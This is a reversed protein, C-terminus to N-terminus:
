QKLLIKVYDHTTYLIASVLGYNKKLFHFWARSPNGLAAEKLELRKKYPLGTDEWTNKKPHDYECVGAFFGSVYIAIGKRSAAFGYDYDGFAHVYVPDINDLWAFVEGPILVCNANFTDCRMKQGKSMVHEYKPRWNSKKIVGGYTYEGEKNETVGVMIAPEDDLERILRSVANEHFCVDDNIFLIYDYRKQALRKKAASIALRMGGSYYLNGDGQIVTVEKRGELFDRTGDTSNDDVAIFEWQIGTDQSLSELCKRTKECRNHCTFLGLVKYPM